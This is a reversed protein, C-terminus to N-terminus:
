NQIIIHDPVLGAQHREYMATYASEIHKTFLETDFLPTTLRNDALKRKIIALKEPNTALEIALREYDELTTTILEPLHIANLVSAAMRGVFAEGIRTLVPLGAWLMDSATTGANYPLTDLFVDALRLRAQHEPLSMLPAFILREANVGRAVAENRLNREVTPSQAVLWLVSGDVQNLIRMWSDYINPTIKYNSNFCCFVFGEQPLGVEARTFIKDAIRRKRDTPQFSNPLYVIKEAYFDQQAEPIVIRDAIIYDIYEAGMTGPYGLYNVQIPASRRAFVGTRSDATFGALDVLIDIELEKVLNAIQNDSYAKTDIFHEFSAELRKRMESNDDPGISIATTEFCSKDHCEFMGAMLLSVPHQRFDASVYAVRIRDHSYQEGQWIPKDSPPYKDAIYLRACRLQDDSSSPVALFPFPQTNGKGNRVASILHTCENDFNNWDCLQMKTHLRLGEIAALDPKLAFAKDYNALADTHRKLDRLANGRNKYAEAYNPKLAIAQEYSVLADALRKLDKLAVGRNNYAEAYDPKLAIAQDYSALAEEPRKLDQLANGRNNHAEAFDPKLVIAKDCSALAEEPRKLVTLANGLNSHAAAVKANLGIAKTILEVARGTRRTQFAIVGLLHLAGFHKPQQRLVEGYTREADALKGQQHLALGQKFKAQLAEADPNQAQPRGDGTDPM